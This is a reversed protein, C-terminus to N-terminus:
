GHVAWDLRVRHEQTEETYDHSETNMYGTYGQLATKVAEAVSQAQDPTRGICNVQILKREISPAGNLVNYATGAVTQFWVFPTTTEEPVRLNYVDDGVLATVGPDASLAAYFDTEITM